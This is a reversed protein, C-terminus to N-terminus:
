RTVLSTLISLGVRKAASVAKRVSAQSPDQVMMMQYMRAHEAQAEQRQRYETDLDYNTTFM